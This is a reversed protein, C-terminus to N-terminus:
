RAVRVQPRWRFASGEQFEILPGDWMPSSQVTEVVRRFEALRAWQSVHDQHFQHFNFEFLPSSPDSSLCGTGVYEDPTAIAGGCVRCARHRFALHGAEQMAVARRGAPHADLCKKHVGADSFAYIPDLRNGVLPSFFEPQSGDDVPKGCLACPMGPLHLAM